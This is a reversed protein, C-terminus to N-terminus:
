EGLRDPVRNKKKPAVILRADHLDTIYEYVAFKGRSHHHHMALTEFNFKTVLCSFYLGLLLPLSTPSFSFVGGASKNLLEKATIRWRGEGNLLLVFTQTPSKSRRGENGEMETDRTERSEWVGTNTITIALPMRM